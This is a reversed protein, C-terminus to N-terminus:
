RLRAVLRAYGGSTSNTFAVVVVRARVEAGTTNLYSVHQFGSGAVFQKSGNCILPGGGIRSLTGNVRVFWDVYGRDGPLLCEGYTTDSTVRVNHAVRWAGGFFGYDQFMIQSPVAGPSYLMPVNYAMVYSAVAEAVANRQTTNLRLSKRQEIQVGEGHDSWSNVFNDDHSGPKDCTSDFTTGTTYSVNRYDEWLMLAEEVGERFLLPVAGGIMIDECDVDDHGHFSVVQDPITDTARFRDAIRYLGSFSQNSLEHSTIHWRLRSDNADGRVLWFQTTAYNKYRNYLHEIQDDTGAEIEGGHPATFAVRSPAGSISGRFFEGIRVSSSPTSTISAFQESVWGCTDITTTEETSWSGSLPSPVSGFKNTFGTGSLLVVSHGLSHGNSEVTCLGTRNNGKVRIQRGELTRTSLYSADLQCHEEDTVDTSTRFQASAVSYQPHPSEFCTATTELGDSRTLEAPVVVGTEEAEGCATVLPALLFPAALVFFRRAAHLLSRPGRRGWTIRSDM